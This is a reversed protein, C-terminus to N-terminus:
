SIDGEYRFGVMKGFRPIGKASLDQYKFTIQEGVLKDRNDWWEQKLKDNIGKGFGVKFEKGQWELWVAGATGAPVKNVKCSSRKTNGLADKEAVNNNTMREEFYLFTGEDDKFSKMKMLIGEDATSRGHKYKGSGSRFMLGEYKETEYEKLKDLLHVEDLIIIPHLVRIYPPFEKRALKILREVYSCQCSFDDFVVFEFEPEGSEKMIASQVDNFDGKVMLEGDLGHFGELKERIFKNPILKMKRSMAIGDVMLCRIGDLKPTAYVPYEIKELEAVGALLPKIVKM